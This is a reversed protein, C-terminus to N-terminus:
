LSHVKLSSLYVTYRKRLLNYKWQENETSFLFSVFYFCFSTSPKFFIVPRERNTELLRRCVSRLLNMGTIFDNLNILLSHHTQENLSGVEYEGRSSKFRKAHM